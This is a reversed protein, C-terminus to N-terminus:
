ERHMGAVHQGWGTRAHTLRNAPGSQRAVAQTGTATARELADRLAYVRRYRHRLYARLLRLKAQAVRLRRQLPRSAAIGCRAAENELPSFM